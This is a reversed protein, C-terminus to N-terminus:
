ISIKVYKELKFSPIQPYIWSKRTVRNFIHRMQASERMVHIIQTDHKTDHNVFEHQTFNTGLKHCSM